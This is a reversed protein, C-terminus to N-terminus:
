FKIKKLGLTNLKQWIYDAAIYEIYHIYYGDCRAIKKPIGKESEGYSFTQNTKLEEKDNEWKFIDMADLLKREETKVQSHSSKSAVM